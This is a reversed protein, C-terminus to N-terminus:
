WHKPGRPSIAKPHAGGMRGGQRLKKERTDGKGRQHSREHDAIERDQVDDLIRMRELRQQEPDRPGPAAVFSRKQQPDQDQRDEPRAHRGESGIGRFSQPRTRERNLCPDAYAKETEHQKGGVRELPDERRRGITLVKVREQLVDAERHM